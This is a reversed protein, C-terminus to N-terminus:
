GAAEAVRRPSGGACIAAFLDPARALERACADIVRDLEGRTHGSNVTLRILSGQAPTAPACFVSGFIGRAELANRLHITRAEPGGILGLIQAQSHGFDLGLSELGTRLYRTNDALTRRRDDAAAIQTLTAELIAIEYDLLASSFIAPRSRYRVADRIQTSGIVVGARAAFTKALSATRAMVADTLGLEVVLGRGQPGHTGLSHSEDVILGCGHRAAVDALERLPAVDGSTSYVSDVLILGGGGRKRIRAELDEVDNHRFRYARAGAANIGEYISMHAFLDVYIPDGREAVAQLLGVNAAFGSQCVVAADGGTFAAIRREFASQPSDDGLFVASMVLADDPRTGTWRRARLIEPHRSLCLYDNSM